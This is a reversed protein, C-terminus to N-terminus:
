ITHNMELMRKEIENNQYICIKKMENIETHLTTYYTVSMCLVYHDLKAFYLLFLVYLFVYFIENSEFRCDEIQFWSSTKRRLTVSGQLDLTLSTIRLKNISNYWVYWLIESDLLVPGFTM